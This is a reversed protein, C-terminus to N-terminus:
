ESRVIVHQGSDPRESTSPVALIAAGFLAAAATVALLFTKLTVRLERPRLM